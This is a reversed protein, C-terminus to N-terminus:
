PCDPAIASAGSTHDSAARSALDRADPSDHVHPQASRRGLALGRRRDGNAADDDVEEHLGRVGLANGSDEFADDRGTLLNRWRVAVVREILRNIADVTHEFEND